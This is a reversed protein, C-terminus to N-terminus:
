KNEKIEKENSYWCKGTTRDVVFYSWGLRRTRSIIYRPKEVETIGITDWFDM